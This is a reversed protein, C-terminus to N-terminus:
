MVFYKYGFHVDFTLVVCFQLRSWSFLMNINVAYRRSRYYFM